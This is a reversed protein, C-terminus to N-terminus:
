RASPRARRWSGSSNYLYPPTYIEVHEEYTGRTPNGGALWVTGDPLLLSVSHYLRAFSNAGASSMTNTPPTM